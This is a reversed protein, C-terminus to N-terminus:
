CLGVVRRQSRKKWLGVQAWKLSFAQLLGDSQDVNFRWLGALSRGDRLSPQRRTSQQGSLQFAGYNIGSGLSQLPFAAGIRALYATAGATSNTKRPTTKTSVM